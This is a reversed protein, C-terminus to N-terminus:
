GGEGSVDLLDVIVKLGKFNVTGGLLSSIFLENEFLEVGGNGGDLTSIGDNIGEGGSFSWEELNGTM